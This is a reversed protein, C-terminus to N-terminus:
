KKKRVTTSVEMAESGEPVPATLTVPGSDLADAIDPDDPSACSFCIAGRENTPALSLEPVEQINVCDACRYIFSM